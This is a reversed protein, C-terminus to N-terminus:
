QHNHISNKVIIEYYILFFDKIRASTLLFTYNQLMLDYFLLM